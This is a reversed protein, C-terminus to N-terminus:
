AKKAKKKPAEPEIYAEAKGMKILTEGDKESVTAICGALLDEGSAATSRLIKVQM